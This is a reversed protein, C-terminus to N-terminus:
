NQCCKLGTLAEAATLQQTTQNSCPVDPRGGFVWSEHCFCSGLLSLLWSVLSFRIWKTKWKFVNWFVGCLNRWPRTWPDPVEKRLVGTEEMGGMFEVLTKCQNLFFFLCYIASKLREAKHGPHCWKSSTSIETAYLSVTEQIKSQKLPEMQVNIVWCIWDSSKRAQAPFILRRSESDYKNFVSICM